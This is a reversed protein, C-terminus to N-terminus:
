LSTRSHPSADWEAVRRGHAAAGVCVAGGTRVAWLMGRELLTTIQRDTIGAARYASPLMYLPGNEAIYRLAARQKASRSGRAVTASHPRTRACSFPGATLDM